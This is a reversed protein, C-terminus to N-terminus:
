WTSSFSRSVGAGYKSGGGGSREIMKENISTTVTGGFGVVWSKQALRTHELREQQKEDEGRRDGEYWDQSERTVKYNIDNPLRCSSEWLKKSGERRVKKLDRVRRQTWAMPDVRRRRPVMVVTRIKESSVAPRKGFERETKSRAADVDIDHFIIELLQQLLHVFDTSSGSKSYHRAIVFMSEKFTECDMRKKKLLRSEEQRLM